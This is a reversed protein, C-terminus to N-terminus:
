KKFKKRSAGVLGLLGAGLMFITAPEPVAAGATGFHFDDVWFDDNIQPFDALFIVKSILTDSTFGVFGFDSFGPLSPQTYSGLLGDLSDYINVTVSHDQGFNGINAGVATIGTPLVATILDIGSDVSSISLDGSSQAVQTVFLSDNATWSVGLNTTPQPKSTQAPPWPASEFDEVTISSTAALFASQDNYSITLAQAIGCIGVILLFATTIVLVRKM